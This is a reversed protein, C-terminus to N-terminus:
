SCSGYVGMISRSSGLPKMLPLWSAHPLIVMELDGISAGMRCSWLEPEFDHEGRSGDESSPVEATREPEHRYQGKGYRRWGMVAPLSCLEILNVSKKRVEQCFPNEIIMQKTYSDIM